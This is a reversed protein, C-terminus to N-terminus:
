YKGDALKMKGGSTFVAGPGWDRVWWSDIGQPVFIFTNHKSDIGWKNYWKLAEKESNKNEVLTFLHNDKALEIALKHPICLPWVIMTGLAPEWEAAVRNSNSQTYFNSQLENEKKESNVSYSFIMLGFFLLTLRNVFLMPPHIRLRTDIKM